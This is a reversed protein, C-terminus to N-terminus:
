PILAEPTIALIYWSEIACTVGSANAQATLTMYDGREFYWISGINIHLSNNVGSGREDFAIDTTGNLKLRVLRAGTSNASFGVQAGVLYLAPEKITIQTPNSTQDWFTYNDWRKANPTLTLAVGNTLAQSTTRYLYATPTTIRFAGEDMILKGIMARHLVDRWYFGTKGAWEVANNYEIPHMTPTTKAIQTFQDVWAQQLATKKKGRRRPWKAAYLKGKFQNFHILGRARIIDKRQPGEPSEIGAM